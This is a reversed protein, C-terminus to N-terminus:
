DLHKELEEWNKNKVMVFRCRGDSLKAWLNGIERDDKAADWRDAGKYEVVLCKDQSAAPLKCVFDPYFRGNAKQLFFSGPDRRVLNRVWFEIRGLEALKDLECACFFEEKSDFDGIRPYFHHRFDCSGFRRNYDRNPNYSDPRFQFAYTDSTTVQEAAAGADFLTAQCARQAAAQQLAQIRQELRNRIVFKQLNARALNFGETALLKTLWGMVFALKNDHTLTPQPLNRCLWAALRVENWNEPPYALELDRQLRKPYSVDVRGHADIYVEGSEAVRLGAALQALDEANPAAHDLPLDQLYGLLKPDDFLHLQEGIRLALQPVRFTIGREAPSVTDVVNYRNAAEAIANKASETQVAQSITAVEAASLPAVISLTKDSGEWRIKKRLAPPISSLNPTEPLTITVPRAARTLDLQEQMSKATRVLEAVERRAFGASNVLSDKLANATEAFSNSVVFAYSQNLEDDAQATAYPQRLIRGLLQEVATASAISAMSVLVYAFPCDWGEALAKQTIVFKVPCAADSIGHKYSANIAELGKEEGTAIVIAAEPINHNTILEERVKAADLTEIGARRPAAQILMIPRLYSPSTAAHQQLADRCAIAAALCHQWNPETHLMVPMKIMHEAKLELASVSHLVNSPSRELDPTATLELIASPNLRALMEFALTTRSNHAEDVIILPRRLRLVNALSYTCTGDEDRLLNAQQIPALQDFHSMLAGNNQYVKRCEEDEVQFAQRTTVILTTSTDLTARTVSKAQELDLVTLSGAERLALHYPHSPQRLANITQDRIAKSPVLWLVVSHESHLLHTNLLAVSKAALWTKGGGTPIRLCFYPMAAPFGQLPYYPNGQGWLQATTATFAEAASPYHHCAHCYAQISDLVQRQYAKPAFSSM